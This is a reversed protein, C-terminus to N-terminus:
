SSKLVNKLKLFLMQYYCNLKQKLLLTRRSCRRKYNNKVPFHKMNDLNVYVGPDNPYEVKWNNSKLYACLEVLIAEKGCEDKSDLLLRRTNNLKLLYEDSIYPKQLLSHYALSYYYDKESPIYVCNEIKCKNSIIQNEMAIPYYGDGVWRVDLRITSGGYCVVYNDRSKESHIRQAGTLSIFVELNDCLIDIDEHGNGCNDEFLIEWNRLVVYEVNRNLFDFFDYLKNNM